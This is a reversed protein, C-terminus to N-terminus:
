SYIITDRSDQRYGCDKKNSRHKPDALMREIDGGSHTLSHTPPHTLSHTPPHTLVAYGELKVKILEEAFSCGIDVAATNNLSRPLTNNNEYVSKLAMREIATPLELESYSSVGPDDNYEILTKTILWRRRLSKIADYKFGETMCLAAHKECLRIEVLPNPIVGGNTEQLRKTLVRLKPSMKAIIDIPTKIYEEPVDEDVHANVIDEDEPPLLQDWRELAYITQENKNQIALDLPTCGYDDKDTM